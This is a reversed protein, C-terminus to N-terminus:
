DLFLSILTISLYISTRMVYNQTNVDAGKEIFYEAINLKGYCSAWFLPTSNNQVIRYSLSLFLFLSFSSSIVDKSDILINQNAILYKISNLDGKYSAKIINYEYVDNDSSDDSDSSSEASM